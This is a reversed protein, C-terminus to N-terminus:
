IRVSCGKSLQRFHPGVWIVWHNNQQLFHAVFIQQAM